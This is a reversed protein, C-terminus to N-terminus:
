QIYRETIRSLYHKIDTSLFRMYGNREHALLDVFLTRWMEIADQIGTNVSRYFVFLYIKYFSFHVILNMLICMKAYGFIKTVYHIDCLSQDKQALSDKTLRALM